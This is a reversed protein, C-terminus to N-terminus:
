LYITSDVGCDEIWCKQFAFAFAFARMFCGYFDICRSLGRLKRRGGAEAWLDLYSIM